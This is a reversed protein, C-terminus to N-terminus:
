DDQNIRVVSLAKVPKLFGKLQLEGMDEVDALGGAEAQVRPTILIQGPREGSRLPPFRPEPRLRDRRLPLTGRLRDSGLTAYGLSIGIGSAWTMAARRGPTSWSASKGAADGVAMRIARAAPDPCPMPDNFFAM